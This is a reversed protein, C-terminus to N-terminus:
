LKKIVWRLQRLMLEQRSYGMRQAVLFNPHTLHADASVASYVDHHLIEIKKAACCDNFVRHFQFERWRNMAGDFETVEGQNAGARIMREHYQERTLVLHAWPEPVRHFFHGGTDCTWIPDFVIYAYGGPNLVRVTELLALGPDPIHEFANISVVCDFFRDKFLLNMADTQTFAVKRLDFPLGNRQYKGAILKIFEGDYLSSYDVIDACFVKAVNQALMGAHMGHGGGLDLMVHEPNPTWGYQSLFHFADAVQATHAAFDAAEDYM